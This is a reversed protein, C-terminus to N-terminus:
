ITWHRFALCFVTCQDVIHLGVHISAKQPTIQKGQREYWDLSQPTALFPSVDISQAAHPDRIGFPASYQWSHEAGKDSRHRTHPSDLREWAFNQLRHPDARTMSL